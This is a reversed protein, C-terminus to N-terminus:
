HENTILQLIAADSADRAYKTEIGFKALFDAVNKSICYAIIISTKNSLNYKEMSQLYVQATRISYFLFALNQGGDLENILENNFENIANAEYVIEDDINIGNGRFISTIDSTIERGRLYLVKKEKIGNINAFNEELESVNSYLIYTNETGFKKAELFTSKGCACIIKNKPFINKEELYRISHRSTFILVEYEDPNFINTKYKIELLPNVIVEYGQNELSQKIRESDEIPRTLVFKM